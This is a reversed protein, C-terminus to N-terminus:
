GSNTLQGGSSVSHESHVPEYSDNEDRLGSNLRATKQKSISHALDDRTERLQDVHDRRSRHVRAYLVVLSRCVKLQLRACWTRLEPATM